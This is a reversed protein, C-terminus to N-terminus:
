DTLRHNSEGISRDKSTMLISMAYWFATYWAPAAFNGISIQYLGVCALGLFALGSIDIEGGTFSRVGEDLQTFSDVVRGSFAVTRPQTRNLRFLQNAETYAAIEEQDMHNAFVLLVTGTVPNAELRDIGSLKSLEQGLTSFYREDGKKSPIRVRLREPTRHCIHAHPLM